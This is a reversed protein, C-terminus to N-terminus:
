TSALLGGRISSKYPELTVKFSLDERDLMDQLSLRVFQDESYGLKEAFDAAKRPSVAKRGHELDCLYQKSVELKEAMAVQSMEEGERISAVFTGLTLSKGSIKELYSLVKQNKKSISM